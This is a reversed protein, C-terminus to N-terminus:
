RPRDTREPERNGRRLDSELTLALRTGGNASMRYIQLNEMVRQVYDRTESLPISEIWDIVDVAPDRPDGFARVWGRARTPGANYAALALIYSGQQATVLDALYASGLQLNYAPSETLLDRVYRVGERRAVDRATAPMLQMLGRAGAPSVADADFASEQRILALRLEPELRDAPGLDPRPYAGPLYAIGQRTARKGAAVAFEPRGVEHALAVLLTPTSADTASDVAASFFVGLRDGEGLAALQRILRVIESADFAARAGADAAPPPTLSPRAAAPLKQAALQGYYTTVHEAARAYWDQAQAQDAAAEAARGAWYAARALSVPFRVGAYLGAFHRLAVARDDLFRLAIWGALWEAEAWDAGATLRHNRALRYARSIEGQELARRALIAREEWWADPRILEAPSPALLAVAEADRGKRRRWRLREYELGPHAKLEAPVRDIARDVGGGFARLAMRAEALARWGPDVRLTMRLAAGTDGQWLLRDLRAVHDSQRLDRRHRAYFRREDRYTFNGEIWARRILAVGAAADGRARLAEGLREMGTASRPSRDAFWALIDAAPMDQSMAEEARRQLLDQRPWDPNARIFAAIEAFSARSGHRTLDLWQIAKGPLPDAARDALLRADTWDNVQILKFARKYLHLDGASLAAAPDTPMAGRAPM